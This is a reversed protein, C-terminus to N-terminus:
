IGSIPVEFDWLAQREDGDKVKPTYKQTAATKISRM